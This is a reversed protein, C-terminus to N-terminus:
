LLTAAREDLREVLFPLVLVPGPALVSANGRGGWPSRMESPLHIDTTIPIKHDRRDFCVADIWWTM